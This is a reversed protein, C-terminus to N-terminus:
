MTKQCENLEYRTDRSLNKLYTSRQKGRLTRFSAPGKTNEKATHKEVEPAKRAKM